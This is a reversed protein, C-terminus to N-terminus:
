DDHAGEPHRSHRSGHLHDEGHGYAGGEPHFPARVPRVEAGLRRAIDAIVHDDRIRLGDDQLEVPLHRNGLHWAIRALQVPNAGRIELLDEPAAAVGVVRGDDLVLGDGDRLTAAEPLDLLFALGRAGTMMLRRRHRSDYDLVVTDAAKAPDWDGRPVVVSARLM